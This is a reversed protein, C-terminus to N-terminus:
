FSHFFFWLCPGCSSRAWVQFHLRLSLGCGAARPPCPRAASGLLGEAAPTRPQPGGGLLGRPRPTPAPARGPGAPCEGDGKDPGGAVAAAARPAPEAAGAVGVGAAASGLASAAEQGRGGRGPERAPPALPPARGSLRALVAGGRQGWGRGRRPTPSLWSGRSACSRAAARALFGRGLRSSPRSSPSSGARSLVRRFIAVPAPHSRVVAGGRGGGPPQCRRSAGGGRVARLPPAQAGLPVASAGLSALSPASDQCWKDTPITPFIGQFGRVM